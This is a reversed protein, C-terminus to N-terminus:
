VILLVQATGTQVVVDVSNVGSEVGIELIVDKAVPSHNAM